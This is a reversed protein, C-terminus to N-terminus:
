ANKRVGKHMFLKAFIITSEYLFVMPIALAIQSIVDPPTLVAGLVFMLVIAHKRREVLYAVDLFGSYILIILIVPIQFALGFAMIFTVSLGLYESVRAELLISIDQSSLQEFGLFFKWAMPMVYYYALSAGLLFLIPSAIFLPFFMFRERKYLGPALFYYINYLIIPMSIIIGCYVSLKLYVFFFEALGTFILKKNEADTGFAEKLPELLFGYINEIFLYSFISALIVSISINLLRLKLEQLHKSYKM